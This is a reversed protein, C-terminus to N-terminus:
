LKCTPSLNPTRRNTWNGRLATLARELPGDGSVRITGSRIRNCANFPLKGAVMDIGETVATPRRRRPIVPARRGSGDTLDPFKVGGPKSTEALRRDRGTPSM